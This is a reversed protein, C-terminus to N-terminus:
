LSTVRNCGWLPRLHNDPTFESRCLTKGVVVETGRVGGSTGHGSGGFKATVGQLDPLRADIRDQRSSDHRLAEADFPLRQQDAVVHDRQVRNAADDDDAAALRPSAHGLRNLRREPRFEHGLFM